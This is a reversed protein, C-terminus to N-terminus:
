QTFTFDAYEFERPTVLETGFIGLIGEYGKRCEM